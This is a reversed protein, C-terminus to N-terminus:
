YPMGDYDLNRVVSVDFYANVLFEDTNVKDNAETIFISDVLSPNVKFFNYNVVANEGTFFDSLYDNDFPAVWDGYASTRFAGNVKDVSTKYEIYRPTYGIPTEPSIGLNNGYFSNNLYLFPLEQMGIRDFEPIPYDTSETQTLNLDVGTLNYDILPVVHYICMIIGHEKTEYTEKGNGSGVGKGKIMANSDGLAQNVVENINLDTVTGGIWTCLNGLSDPIKVGFHKYIQDPYDKSGTQSVEKWRQLSQKQRLQLISFSSKLQSMTVSQSPIEVSRDGLSVYMSSNLYNNLSEDTDVKILGENTGSSTPSIQVSATGSGGSMKDVLVKSDGYGPINMSTGGTYGTLGSLDNDVLAVDGLQSDPLVGMFLDKTYNCRQLDFMTPGQWYTEPSSAMMDILGGTSYDLNYTFPSANEWQSNRYYDQYIKQYACLPFINVPMDRFYCPASASANIVSEVYEDSAYGYGLYNLLKATTYSRNFGYFDKKASLRSLASNVTGSGTKGPGYLDSLRLYPMTTTVEKNTWANTAQLPNDTMMTLASPASKWLLRLPVFYWDFYERFRTFAATQVPITRTFHRHSLDWNDGPFTLKFYVPLLEGSKATFANKNGLDFANRSPKNKLDNLDFIKAM